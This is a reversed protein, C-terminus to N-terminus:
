AMPIPQFRVSSGLRPLGACVSGWVWAWGYGYGCGCEYECGVGVSLGVVVGLGYAGAWDAVM